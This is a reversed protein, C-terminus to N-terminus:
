EWNCKVFKAVIEKPIDYHKAVVEIVEEIPADPELLYGMYAPVPRDRIWLDIDLLADFLLPYSEIELSQLASKIDVVCKKM